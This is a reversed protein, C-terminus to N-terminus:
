LKSDIETTHNYHGDYSSADSPAEFFLIQCVSTGAKLLLDEGSFNYISCGGPGSYGTDWVGSTCFIGKRSFSSRTCVPMAFVSGICHITEIFDVNIFEGKLIVIDHKIRLDIGNQQV